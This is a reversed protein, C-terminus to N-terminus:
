RIDNDKLHKLVLELAKIYEYTEKSTESVHVDFHNASTKIYYKGDEEAVFRDVGIEKCILTEIVEQPNISVNLSAIAKIEM